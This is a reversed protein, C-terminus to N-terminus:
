CLVLLLIQSVWSSWIFKQCIFVCVFVFAAINPTACVKEAVEHSCFAKHIKLNQYNWIYKCIDKSYIDCSIHFTPAFMNLHSICYIKLYSMEFLSFYRNPFANLIFKMLFINRSFILCSIECNYLPM